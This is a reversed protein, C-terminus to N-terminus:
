AIVSFTEREGTEETMDGLPRYIHVTFSDGINCFDDTRSDAGYYGPRERAILRDVASKVDWWGFENKKIKTWRNNKNMLKM